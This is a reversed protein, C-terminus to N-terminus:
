SNGASVQENNAGRNAAEVTLRGSAYDRLESMTFRWKKGLPRGIVGARARRMITTVSLGLYDAAGYKDVVERQVYEGM